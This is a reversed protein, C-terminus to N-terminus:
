EASKEDPGYTGHHSATMGATRRSTVPPKGLPVHPVAPLQPGTTREHRSTVWCRVVRASSVWAAGTNRGASGFPGTERARSPCTLPQYPEARQTSNFWM